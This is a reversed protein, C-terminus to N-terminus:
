ACGCLNKRGRFCQQMRWLALGDVTNGFVDERSGNGMMDGMNGGGYVNGLVGQTLNLTPLITMTAMNNGGFLYNVHVPSDNAPTMSSARVTVSAADSVTESNGGAFLYDVYGTGRYFVQATGVMASNGGGFVQGIRGGQTNIDVYTKTQEPKELYLRSTYAVDNYYPYQGNGGGFVNGVQPTGTILVYTYTSDTTLTNSIVNQTSRNESCEIKGSIDNGGYVSAVNASGSVLMDAYGNVSAVRGGAYSGREPDDAHTFGGGINGGEINVTTNGDVVAVVDWKNTGRVVTKYKLGEGGGYVGYHVVPQISNSDKVTLVTNGMVWGARRSARDFIDEDEDLMRLMNDGYGRGGAFVRGVIEGGAITVRTDGTVEGELGGGYVNGGGLAAQYNTSDITGGGIYVSTSGMITGPKTSEVNLFSSYGRGGGYVGSMQGGNVVVDTAFGMTAQSGQEVAPKVYHTAVTMDNGNSKDYTLYEYTAINVGAEETIEGVPALEGGGFVGNRIVGGNVTVKTKKVYANPGYGGGYVNGEYSLVHDVNPIIPDNLETSLPLDEGESNIHYGQRIFGVHGSNVTVDTTGQMYSLGSGGYISESVLLDDDNGDTTGFVMRSNGNKPLEM